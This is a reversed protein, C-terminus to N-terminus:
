NIKGVLFVQIGNLFSICIKGFNNVTFAYRKIQSNLDKKPFEFLCNAQIPFSNQYIFFTTNSAM